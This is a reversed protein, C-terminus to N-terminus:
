WLQNKFKEQYSDSCLDIYLEFSIGNVIDETTRYTQDLVVIFGCIRALELINGIPLKRFAPEHNLYPFTARVDM